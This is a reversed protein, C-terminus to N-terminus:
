ISHGDVLGVPIGVINTKVLSPLSFKDSQPVFTLNLDDLQFSQYNYVINADM